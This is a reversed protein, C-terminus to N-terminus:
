VAISMGKNLLQYVSVSEVGGSESAMVGLPLNQPLRCRFFHTLDNFKSSTGSADWVADMM